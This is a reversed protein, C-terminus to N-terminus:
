DRASRSRALSADQHSIIWSAQGRTLEKPVPARMKAIRALQKDTPPLQRWRADMSALKVSDPRKTHVWDDALRIIWDLHKTSAIRHTAGNRSLSLQYDGLMTQTVFLREDGIELAFDGGPASHWALTTLDRIADPPEFSFFDIREALVHKARV